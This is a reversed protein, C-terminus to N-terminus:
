TIIADYVLYTNNMCKQLIIPYVTSVTATNKNHNNRHHMINFAKLIEM